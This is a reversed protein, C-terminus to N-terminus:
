EDLESRVEDVIEVLENRKAEAINNAVSIADRALALAQKIAEQDEQGLNQIINASAAPGTQVAGVNGYFHYIPAQEAGANGKTSNQERTDVYLDIEIEHKAITHDRSQELSVQEIKKMGMLNQSLLQMLEDYSSIINEQMFQKLDAAINNTSEAGITQIVRVLNQWAIVARIEIERECIEKICLVTMSSRLLGRAAHESKIKSIEIALQKRREALQIEILRNAREIFKENFMQEVKISM